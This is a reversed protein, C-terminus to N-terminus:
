SGAVAIALRDLKLYRRAVDLVQERSVARVLDPYRYYYDLGLNHRELYLIGGAVGANSELSPPLRGLYNSKSDELEDEKIMEVTFREFENCVLEITKEVNVPDVGAAAYWVGPGIGGNMSSYAYYALGARERVSEGIRGYMGFQGLV